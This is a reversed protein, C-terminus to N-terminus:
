INYVQEYVSVSIEIHMNKKKRSYKIGIIKCYQSYQPNVAFSRIYSILCRIRYM